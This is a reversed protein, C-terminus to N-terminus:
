RGGDTAAREPRRDMPVRLADLVVDLKQELRDTKAEQRNHREAEEKKHQYLDDKIIDVRENTAKVGADVQAQVTSVGALTGGAIAGATLIGGLVTGIKMKHRTSELAKFVGSTTQPGDSFSHQGLRPPSTKPKPLALPPKRFLPAM